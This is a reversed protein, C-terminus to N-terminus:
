VSLSTLRRDFQGFSSLECGVTHVWPPLALLKRTVSRADIVSVYITFQM